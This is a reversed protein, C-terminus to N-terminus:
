PALRAAVGALPPEDLSEQVCRAFLWLRLRAPDLDLLGAMRRAFAAPDDLLREACNLMHQLADYTPDGLYPKPDIVLWPERRAALVNGAHLDTCLLVQESASRPLERWLAMAARALGPEVGGGAACPNRTEFEGAWQECMLRLPRFLHGDPPTAWLRRLLGAVVVDQEPEPLAGGLPGGPECRELLLASTRDFTGAAILRVAGNGSWLRLAAAEHDAEPHRWGVKLVLAEGVANAAPAVWSCQGGPEYPEGLRLGWREALEAVVDPLAALWGALDGGDPRAAIEGLRRPIRLTTM